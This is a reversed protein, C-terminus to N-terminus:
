LSSERYYKKLYRSLTLLPWIYNYSHYYFYFSGRLGAGTPYTYTWDRENLKRILCKMGRNIEDAPKDYVSILADLAWATQSPTSKGLPIYTKERDSDCSEGWGGDDNQINLLWSVGKQIASDNRKVGVARMGTLAAWTGYIYCIGWRGFWSGDLEQNKILWKVGRKVQHHDFTLRVDRGLFELTRGTLDASSPDIGADESGEIPVFTLLRNDTNKEFAPWGGDDNQMSLVWRLGRHWSERYSPFRQATKRLARLAATTDDVDPHITNIDSFGWGGPFVQPNHIVWDGNRYHQRQLIYDNATQIVSASISVESSQLAHSILATNWVTSTTLQMHYGDDTHSVFTKLGRVASQIVPAHKAYGLALLAFIMLFTSTFYSYLTGDPEIRELMFRKSRELAMQHLEEPLGILRKISQKIFSICSKAELSRFEEFRHNESQRKCNLHSLDPSNQKNIVFKRDAIVLMPAMHVRAYGAFDFFNIPCAPPLLILEIPIPFYKPWPLQGTVALMLKTLTTAKHLGGNAMIFQEAKKMAPDNRKKYGSYLLAYYAEITLSLNGGQEDHYFKWAGNESQKEEIRHVLKRIFVEDKMGVSRLLIMMYADTSPGGEFCFRWSGDMSQQEKLSVILRSIESEVVKNM